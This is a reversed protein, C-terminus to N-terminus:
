IRVSGNVKSDRIVAGPAKVSGNVKSEVISVVTADTATISGNLNSDFIILGAGPAVKTAGNVSAGDLCTVGSKVDLGGNIRNTIVTTCAPYSPQTQVNLEEFAV